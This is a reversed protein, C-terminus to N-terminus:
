GEKPADSPVTTGTVLKHLHEKAAGTAEMAARVMHKSQPFGVEGLATYAAALSMLADGVDRYSVVLDHARVFPSPEGSM